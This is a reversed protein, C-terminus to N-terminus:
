QVVVVVVAVLLVVMVAVVVVLVLVVLVVVPYLYRPPSSVMVPSYIQMTDNPLKGGSIGVGGFIRLFFHMSKGPDSM